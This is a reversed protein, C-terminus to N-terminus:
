MCSCYRLLCSLDLDRADEQNLSFDVYDTYDAGM